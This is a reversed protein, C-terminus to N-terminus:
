LAVNETVIKDINSIAQKSYNYGYMKDLTDVIESTSLGKSVQIVLDELM